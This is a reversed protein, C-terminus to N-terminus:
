PTDGSLGLLQLANTRYIKRLVDEPLGIGDIKWDGQIPTPHDFQRDRTELFRWHTAYFRAADAETPQDGGTSGLMLGGNSIGIDTGFVIRDQFDVFLRRVQEAPHRGIEPVRAAIDVWANPYATLLGRVYTLDEPNNGFHVCVFTTLTHRAIVRDRMALLANRSPVGKDHFSWGPHHRLEAYRENDPTLPRWFAAPDSTHISVPIGLEGARAWLPDLRPDDIDILVAAKDRIYLGLAKSIKLGRFGYQRVAATLRQAERVAWWPEDIDAWDPTYFNVVKGPMARTLGVAGRMGSSFNGGSLNVILEIGAARMIRDIRATARPDLHGHFDIVPARAHAAGCCLVVTLTVLSCRM